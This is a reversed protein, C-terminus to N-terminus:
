ESVEKKAKADFMRARHNATQDLAAPLRKWRRAAALSRAPCRPSCFTELMFFLSHKRTVKFCFICKLTLSSMLLLSGRTNSNVNDRSDCVIDAYEILLVFEM